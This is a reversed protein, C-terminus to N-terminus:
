IASESGGKMKGDCARILVFVLVATLLLVFLFILMGWAGPTLAKRLEVREAPLLNSLSLMYGLAWGVSADGAQLILLWVDSCTLSFHTKIKQVLAFSSIRVRGQFSIRQFSTENFGYGKLMLVQVYVSSACYDQLRAKQEPALREMQFLVWFHKLINSYSCM